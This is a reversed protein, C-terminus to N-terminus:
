TPLSRSKQDQFGKVVSRTDELTGGPSNVRVVLLCDRAKAQALARQLYRASGPNVVTTLEPELACNASASAVRSSLLAAFLWLVRLVAKTRYRM